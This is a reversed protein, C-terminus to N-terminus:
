VQLGDDLFVGEVPEDAARGDHRFLEAVEEVQHVAVIDFEAHHRRTGGHVGTEIAVEGQEVEVGRQAEAVDLVLDAGQVHLISLLDRHIFHNCAWMM